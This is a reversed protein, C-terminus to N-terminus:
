MRADIGRRHRRRLRLALVALWVLVAVLVLSLVLVPSSRPHSTAKIVFTASRDELTSHRPGQFRVRDPGNSLALDPGLVVGLETELIKPPERTVVLRLRTTTGRDLRARHEIVVPAPGVRQDGALDISVSLPATAPQGDLEVTVLPGEARRREEGAALERADIEGDGNTDLARRTEVATLAGFLWSDTLDVRGDFVAATVYRNTGMSSFEPHAAAPGAAALVLLVPVAAKVTM